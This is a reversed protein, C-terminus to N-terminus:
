GGLLAAVLTAHAGDVRGQALQAATRRAVAISGSDDLQDHSTGNGLRCRCLWGKPSQEIELRPLTFKSADAGDLNLAWGEAIRAWSSGTRV